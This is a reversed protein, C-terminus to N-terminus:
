VHHVQRPAVFPPVLLVDAVAELVSVVLALVQDRIGLCPLGGRMVPGAPPHRATCLKDPRHSCVPRKSATNCPALGSGIRWSIASTLLCCMYLHGAPSAPLALLPAPRSSFTDAVSQTMGDTGLTYLPTSTPESAAHQHEYEGPAAGRRGRRSVSFRTLTVTLDRTV